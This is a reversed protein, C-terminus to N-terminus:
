PQYKWGGVHGGCYPCHTLTPIEVQNLEAEQEAKQQEADPYVYQVKKNKKPKRLGLNSRTPLGMSRLRERYRKNYERKWQLIEERTKGRHEHHFNDSTDWGEGHARVRHMRLGAMSRFERGCDSCKPEEVLTNTKEEM